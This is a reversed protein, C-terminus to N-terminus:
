LEATYVNVGSAPKHAVVAINVTVTLGFMVGVNSKPVNDVMQALAATGANGATDMSPIAPVHLGETTSLWFEPIYVNVGAEPKHAVVVVNVSVTLGFTVGLKLKPVDNVMQAPPVTGMSVLVDVSPIVPTHFGEMTSSWTEPEYVNVGAAPKHAVVVVNTTVTLGFMVGLKLKPVEDTIQVSAVTGANGVGDNFLM